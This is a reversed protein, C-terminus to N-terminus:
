FDRLRWLEASEPNWSKIESNDFYLIELWVLKPDTIAIDACGRFEEQPGCGDAETGDDCRGWDNGTIYIWHLVCHNCTLDRPLEYWMEFKGTWDPHYKSGNGFDPSQILLNADLCKQTALKMVDNMTPCIRFEFFGRHNDTLKVDIEITQNMEYNAVILGNGYKGGPQPEVAPDGCTGCKGGNQIWQREKGDCFLETYNIPTTSGEKWHSSGSDPICNEYKSWPFSALREIKSWRDPHYVIYVALVLMLQVKKPDSFIRYCEWFSFCICWWIYEWGWDM